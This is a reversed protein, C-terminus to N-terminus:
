KNMEGCLKYYGKSRCCDLDVLVSNTYCLWLSGPLGHSLNQKKWGLEYYRPGLSM